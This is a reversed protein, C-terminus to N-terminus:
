DNIATVNSLQNRSLNVWGGRAGRFVYTKAKGREGSHSFILTRNKHEYRKGSQLEYPDLIM